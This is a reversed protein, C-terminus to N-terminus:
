KSTRVVPYKLNNWLMMGGLMNYVNNWGQSQAFAAAHASRSGSRCIFVITKDQPLQPLNQPLTDLVVLDAGEIHGLEGVYEEPQRVDVLLVQGLHQSLEEPHVDQVGQYHPNELAQTFKLPANTTM